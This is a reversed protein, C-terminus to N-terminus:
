VLPDPDTPPEGTSNYNYGYVFAQNRMVLWDVSQFMTINLLGQRSSSFPDVFIDLGGWQAFILSMPDFFFVDGDNIQNSIVPKYGNITGGPEQILISTADDPFRKTTKTYADFMSNGFYTMGQTPVNQRKCTAEMMVLETYSPGSASAFMATQNFPPTKSDYEELTKVIGKPTGGTGDGYFGKRDIELALVRAMNNRIMMEFDISSQLRTQRTLSTFVSVTKPSLSIREFNADTGPAQANEGIWGVQAGSTQRLMDYTGVLGGLPQARRILASNAYLLEIFGPLLTNAVTVGAQGDGVPPPNVTIPPGTRTGTLYNYPVDGLVDRPIVANGRLKIGDNECQRKAAFSCDIEFAAEERLGKNEPDALSYILRSLRFDRAERPSLGIKGSPRNRKMESERYDLAVSRFSEFDQGEAIAKAITEDPVCYKRGFSTIQQSRAREAELASKTISTSDVSSQAIMEAIQEDTADDNIKFGRKKLAPILPNMKQPIIELVTKAPIQTKSKETNLERGVGVTADAPVTVISIELPTWRTVNVIERDGEKSEKWDVIQYAVSVSRLVGAKVDAEIQRALNSNGFRVVARGKQDAEITASEVVGIYQNRDHNFLLNAGNNLRSLDCAEKEHSLIEYYGWRECPESSSFSLNVTHKEADYGGIQFERWYSKTTDINHKVPM